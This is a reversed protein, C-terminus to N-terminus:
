QQRHWVSLSFNVFYTCTYGAVGSFQFIVFILNSIEETLSESLHVLVKELRVIKSRSIRGLFSNM